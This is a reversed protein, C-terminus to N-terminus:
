SLNVKVTKKVKRNKKDNPRLADWTLNSDSLIILDLAHAVSPQRKLTCWSNFVQRSVKLKELVKKKWALSDQYPLKNLYEQLTM